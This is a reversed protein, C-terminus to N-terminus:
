DKGVTTPNTQYRQNPHNPKDPYHLQLMGNSVLPDLIATKSFQKPPLGIAQKLHTKIEALSRPQALCFNLLTQQPETLPPPLPGTTLSDLSPSLRSRLHAALRYVPQPATEIKELLVQTVLKDLVAQAQPYTLRTVAQIELLSLRSQRCALAFVAAEPQSFRVGLEAQFRRQAASLLPEKLLTLRFSKTAKDNDILPPLWGLQSWNRYISRLGTGAQESLGIRRFAAALRPNRLEKEGSTLWTDVTTFADGPNWFVTRDLYFHITPLRGQDGYDQHILLNIAAERFSIYDPPLDTRQFTGEELAFPAEAHKLYFNVLGQWAQVLNTEALFRDRWREENFIDDATTRHWQCDVIPRSLIQNLAAPAGFLLVSARSPRLQGAQEVLLGWHQLFEIDSLAVTDHGPQRQTFAARYWQISKPDFCSEPNLNPLPQSEYREDVAERLFRELETPSCLQDRGGLRIYSRRPDNDLYIPKDQRRAEHIYFILLVKNDVQQLDPHCVVGPKIKHSDRLVGLFDNQVKDVEIVGIIELTGKDKEAVGFVLWGGTTNAFASVTEYASKPVGWLAEKFEIDNWEYGKLRELLEDRTM